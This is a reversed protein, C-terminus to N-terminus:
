SNMIYESPLSSAITIMEYIGEIKLSMLLVENNLIKSSLINFEYLGTIYSEVPIERRVINDYLVLVAWLSLSKGYTSDFCNFSLM